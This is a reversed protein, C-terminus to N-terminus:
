NMKAASANQWASLSCTKVVGRITREIRTTGVRTKASIPMTAFRGAKYLAPARNPNAAAKAKKLVPWKMMVSAMAAMSGFPM